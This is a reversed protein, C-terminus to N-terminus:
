KKAPPQKKKPAKKKKARQPAAIKRATMEMKGQQRKLSDRMAEIDGASIEKKPAGRRAMERVSDIAKVGLGLGGAIPGMGPIVSLIPLAVRAVSKIVDWLKGLDNYDASYADKLQRSIRYYSDIAQMDERPSLRQQPSLPSGPVVQLEIGVRFYCNMSSTAALGRGAVFGWMGSLPRFIKDGHIRMSTGSPSGVALACSALQPFPISAQGNGVLLASSSLLSYNLPGVADSESDTIPVLFMGADAYGRWDQETETLRLPMYLGDKSPGLMANPMTMVSEYSGLTQLPYSWAMRSAVTAVFPSGPVDRSSAPPQKGPISTIATVANVGGLSWEQPEVAYQAAGLTGQNALAPGDQYMTLGYYSLRWRVPFNALWASLKEVYSGGPVSTNFVNYSDGPGPSSNSRHTVCCAHILADPMVNLDFDWTEGGLIGVPPNIRHVTQFNMFVTPVASGDPIGRCEVVPDSPHLAKILWDRGTDTAGAPDLTKIVETM